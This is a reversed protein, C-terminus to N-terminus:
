RFPTSLSRAILCTGYRFGLYHHNSARSASSPQQIQSKPNPQPSARAVNCMAATQQQCKISTQQICRMRAAFLGAQVICQAGRSAVHNSYPQQAHHVKLEETGSFLSPPASQSPGAQMHVTAAPFIHTCTHVHGFVIPRITNPVTTPRNGVICM